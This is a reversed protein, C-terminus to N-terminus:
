WSWSTPNNKVFTSPCASTPSVLGEASSASPLVFFLDVSDAFNISCLWKKWVSYIHSGKHALNPMNDRLNRELDMFRMFSFSCPWSIIQEMISHMMGGIKLIYRFDKFQYLPRYSETFYPRVYAHVFHSLIPASSPCPHFHVFNRSHDTLWWSKRM